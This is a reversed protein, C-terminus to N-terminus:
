VYVNHGCGIQGCERCFSDDPIHEVDDPDTPFVRDDGVMVMLVNGTPIQYGSWETVNEGTEEDYEDVLEPGACYWAIGASGNVRFHSVGMTDIVEQYTM